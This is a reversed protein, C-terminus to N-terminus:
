TSYQRPCLPAVFIEWSSWSISPYWVRIRGARQQRSKGRPTLLTAGLDYPPMYRMIGIAYFRLSDHRSVAHFPCSRLHPILLADHDDRVVVDERCVRSRIPVNVNQPVEHALLRSTGLRRTKGVSVPPPGIYNESSRNNQYYYPIM